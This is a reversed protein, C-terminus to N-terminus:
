ELRFYDKQISIRNSLTNAMSGPKLDVVVKIFICDIDEGFNSIFLLIM